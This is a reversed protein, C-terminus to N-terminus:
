GPRSDDESGWPIARGGHPDGLAGHRGWPNPRGGRPTNWRPPAEAGELGAPPRGSESTRWRPRGGRMKAAVETQRLSRAARVARGIEAAPAAINRDGLLAQLFRQMPISKGM